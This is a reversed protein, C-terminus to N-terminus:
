RGVFFEILQHILIRRRLLRRGFAFDDLTPNDGDGIKAHDHVNAALRFRQNRGAFEHFGFLRNLEIGSLVDFDLKGTLVLFAVNDNRVLARAPTADPGIEVLGIM